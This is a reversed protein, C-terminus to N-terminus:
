RMRILKLTQTKGDETTGRLFFIGQGAENKPPSWDFQRRGKTLSCLRRGAADCLSVSLWRSDSLTIRTSHHFPNPVAFLVRGSVALASMAESIGSADASSYYVQWPSMPEEWVVWVRGHAVAIRAGGGLADVVVASTDSWDQGDFYRVTTQYSGSGIRVDYVVWIRGLEDTCYGAGSAADALMLPEVWNTGHYRATYVDLEKQWVARVCGSPSVCLYPNGDVSPDQFVIPVPESWTDRTRVSSFVDVDWGDYSCDWVAMVQSDNLVAVDTGFGLEYNPFSDVVQPTTWSDAVGESM